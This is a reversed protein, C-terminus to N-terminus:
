PDDPIEELSNNKFVNRISEFPSIKSLEDSLFNASSEKADNIGDNIKESTNDVVNDLSSEIKNEISETAKQSINNVDRKLSETVSASTNSFFGSIESSFVIGGLILLIGVIGLKLLM